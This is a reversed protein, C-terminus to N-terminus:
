NKDSLGVKNIVIYDKDLSLCELPVDACGLFARLERGNASKAKAMLFADAAAQQRCPVKRIM